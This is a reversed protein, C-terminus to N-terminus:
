HNNFSQGLISVIGTPNGSVDTTPILTVQGRLDFLIQNAFQLKSLLTFRSKSSM